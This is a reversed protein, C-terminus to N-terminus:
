PQSMTPIEVALRQQLTYLVAAHVNFPQLVKWCSVSISLFREKYLHTYYNRSLSRIVYILTLVFGGEGVRQTGHRHSEGNSFGVRKVVKVASDVYSHVVGCKVLRIAADYDARRM